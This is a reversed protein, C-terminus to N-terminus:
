CKIQTSGKINNIESCIRQIHAKILDYDCNKRADPPIIAGSLGLAFVGAEFYEKIKDVDVGGTPLLKLHPLPGRVNKIYAPGGLNTIPFVKIMDAGLRDAYMMETPTSTGPCVSIGAEKCLKIIAEDVHPAVIFASGSKIAEGAMKENLATGVGFLLEPYNKNLDSIIETAGPTNLTIEVIKLGGDICAKAIDFAKQQSSDRIIAVIKEKEFFGVVDKV